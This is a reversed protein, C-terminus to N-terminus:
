GSLVRTDGTTPSRDLEILDEVRHRLEPVHSVVVVLRDGDESVLSEIGEMALDLHEPDLTGFGEDLFFADLRGGGRAVIEALGLALALSALFTEGGSLSDAKRVADAATLDVIDFVGSESFRYRGNTLRQFHESGLEALRRREDDLLFRVFRADTLDAALAQHTKMTAVHADRRTIHDAKGELQEAALAIEETLVDVRSRLAGLAEDFSGTVDTKDLLGGLEKSHDEAVTSAQDRRKTTDRVSQEAMARLTSAAEAISEADDGVTPADDIRSAIGTLAVRLDALWKGGAQEAEIAGDHDTRARDRATAASELAGAADALEKRMADLTTGIDESGILRALEATTASAAERAQVLRQDLEALATEADGLRREAEEHATRASELAASAKTNAEEVTARDNRTAQLTSLASEVDADGNTAPITAVTQECVPCRDGEHLDRRLTTAMNAHSADHYATEAAALAASLEQVQHAAATAERDALTVRDGQGAVEAVAQQRRDNGRSLAQEADAVALAREDNAALLVTAAELTARTAVAEESRGKALVLEARAQELGEATAARQEAAQRAAAVVASVDDEVPFSSTLTALEGLGQEASRQEAEAAEIAATLERVKPEAGELTALRESATSLVESRAATAEELDALHRVSVAAKEAEIEAERAREKALARMRDIRDHGFVGKLVKDREAPPANLFEAFRGQALLVSRGFADFDLGLLEAIRANVEADGTITELKEADETDEDLRYLAHQSAGKRRLMRQAEWLEGDVSFRFAVAANDARQHILAKTSRGVTSTRGYLAFAIADLITSKGSGIPGVIGVLRRERFDFAVEEGFYSRFNRLKLDVPRV